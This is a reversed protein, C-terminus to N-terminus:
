HLINIEKSINLDVKKQSVRDREGSEDSPLFNPQATNSHSM